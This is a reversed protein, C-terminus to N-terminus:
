CNNLSCKQKIIWNLQRFISSKAEFRLKSAIARCLIHKDDINQSKLWDAFHNFLLYSKGCRRVCTVIKIMNNHRSEILQNLYTDRRIEM